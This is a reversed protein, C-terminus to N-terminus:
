QKDIMLKLFADTSFGLEELIATRSGHSIFKDPICVNELQVFIKNKLMSLSLEQAVCGNSINEEVVVVRKYKKIEDLLKELPLPKVFRLCIIACEVNKEKAVEAAKIVQELMTGVVIFLVDKGPRIDIFANEENLPPHEIDLYLAEDRPYRIAVAKKQSYAWELMLELEGADGPVLVTMQPFMRFVSLDFQGNHTEGDMGVIGARDIALIVPANSIAIDQCLQDVARMFFTSYIAVVPHLGNYALTSAFTVAHQEAIGVDFFRDPFRTHFASLGTGSEMAATIAVIDQHKEALECLKVAFVDTYSRKKEKPLYFKPAVGHYGVPDNEAPMYGRGKKTKVYLLIPKTLQKQCNRLIYVLDEINHGDIPGIYDFGLQTFMNDYDILVRIGKDLKNFLDKFLNSFPIYSHSFPRKIDDLLKRYNESVAMHNIYRSVPSVSSDISMENDNLIVIVPLRNQGCFSLGEMAVGGTMAGDGIVAIVRGSEGLLLNSQAFGAAQSISSSAHGSDVPDHVSESRRSFGSLGDKQRLTDIKDYRGTLIKHTYSQHGVDFIIKDAPSSFVYHLAITLEVVGLNSALHGGNEKVTEIIKGRIEEALEPLRHIPIKKLDEISQIQSLM